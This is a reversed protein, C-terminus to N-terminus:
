RHDLVPQTGYPPAASFRATRTSIGQRTPVVASPWDREEGSRDLTRLECALDTHPRDSFGRRDTWNQRDVIDSTLVGASRIQRHSSKPTPTGPAACPSPWESPTKRRDSHRLGQQLRLRRAHACQQNAQGLDRDDPDTLPPPPQPDHDGGLPPPRHAATTAARVTVTDRLDCKDVQRHEPSRRPQHPALLPPAARRTTPRPRGLIPPDARAAARQRRSRRPPRRALNATVTAADGLHGGVQATVPVRHHGRDDRHTFRQDLVRCTDTRDAGEAQILRQESALARKAPLPPRSLDDVNM